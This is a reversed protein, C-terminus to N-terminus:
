KIKLSIKIRLLFLRCVSQYGFWVCLAGAHVHVSGNDFCANRRELECNEVVSVGGQLEARSLPKICCQSCGASVAQLRDASSSSKESAVCCGALGRLQSDRGDLFESDASSCRQVRRCSAQCSCEAMQSGNPLSHVNSQLAASPAGAEVQLYVM